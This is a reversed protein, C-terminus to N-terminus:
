ITTVDRRIVNLVTNTNKPIDVVVRSLLLGTNPSSTASTGCFIGIEKIDFNSESPPISCVSEVTSASSLTQKTLPRRSLENALRTDDITPPTTGDGFAFYRIQLDSMTYEPSGMLASTRAKQSVATLLNRFEKAWVVKGTTLDIAEVRYFGQCRYKDEM